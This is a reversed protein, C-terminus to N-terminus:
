VAVLNSMINSRVVINMRSLDFHLSRHPRDPIYTVVPLLRGILSMRAFSIGAPFRGSM